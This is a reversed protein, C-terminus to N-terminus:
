LTAGCNKCYTADDDHNELGCKHCARTSTIKPKSSAMEATVIGTPVAIIGYGVIMLMSAIFQGLSTAPSIDGYGVTTLTVISWYISVPISVFGHEPGEVIFMLTGSLINILVVAFLFVLIKRRSALLARTIYQSEGIFQGLKLVRFIRLLRLIRIVMLSQAGTILLSLYSPLMSLLDIIGYFGLVYNKPREVTYIRVFYEITFLGTFIWEAAVLEAQYAEQISPVSELIVALVSLVIAGFLVVDFWKGAPTEAEFIIDHLKKRTTM